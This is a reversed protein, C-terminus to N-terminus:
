FSILITSSNESVSICIFDNRYVVVSLLLKVNPHVLLNNVSYVALIIKLRMQKKRVHNLYNKLHETEKIKTSFLLLPTKICDLPVDKFLVLCNYRYLCHGM